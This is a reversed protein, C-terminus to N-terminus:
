KNKLINYTKTADYSYTSAEKEPLLRRLPCSECLPRSKKCREKGIKVFLAHFENFMATDMPLNDMFLRQVDHYDADHVILGHRGLVRKTYADVVFVPKNLAYLIISDATEPGIGNVHLLQRRVEHMDACAMKRMSGKYHNLMFGLFAKLRQTKINYYGSPKILSALRAHPLSYLRRPSLVGEKKLNAVAKEVNTWSTNQTLVAGVAVEFATDGPWWHQPGYAKYLLDYMRRLKDAIRRDETRQRKM